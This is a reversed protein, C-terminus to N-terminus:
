ARDGAEADPLYLRQGTPDLWVRVPRESGPDIFREATPTLHGHPGAGERGRYRQREFAIAVVVLALVIASIWAAPDFAAAACAAILLLVFFGLIFNRLMM